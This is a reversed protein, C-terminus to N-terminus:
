KAKKLPERPWNASPHHASDMFQRLEAVVKPQQEAVNDSEAPDRALDYLEFLKKDPKCRAKWTGWRVAQEFDAGYHEWYLKRPITPIPM